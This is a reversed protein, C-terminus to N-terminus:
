WFRFSRELLIEHSNEEDFPLLNYKYSIKFKYPLDYRLAFYHYIGMDSGVALDEPKQFQAKYDLFLDNSIYKGMRITLNNLFMYYDKEVYDNGTEDILIDSSNEDTYYRSFFNQIIETQIQFYDLDLWQRIRNELPYILPNFLVTGIEIGALQIIEDQLLSNKQSESIEDMSRNYRLKSIIDLMEDQPDDSNLRFQLDIRGDKTKETFVDLTILTGDAAKKYFTGRINVENQFDSLMVQIYDAALRSGVFDIEGEESIFHADAPFLRGNECKLNLYGDKNVLLNTPYTVYHINDGVILMLDMYFPFNYETTKDAKSETIIGFLNLLNDTKPPYILKGNSAYIDGIISINDFPGSVLLDNSDRGKIVFQAVSSKPTYEPIHIILGQDNTHAYFKGMNIMGLVFDRDDNDIKNTIYLKGEGMRLRFTKIQLNNENIEFKVDIKEVKELQDNLELSGKTLAFNGKSVSLGTQGMKLKLNLSTKSSGHEFYDIRDALMKLLDGQYDIEVCNTDPFSENSLINYGIAGNCKLNIESKNKVILKSINLLSDEQSVICKVSDAKIGYIDINQASLDFTFNKKKEALIFSFDTDILGSIRAEPYIDQLMLQSISGSTQFVPKEVLNLEGELNLFEKENATLMCNQFNILSNNGQIQFEADLNKLDIYNFDSIEFYGSIDGQERSDYNVSFDLLGKINNATSYNTIYKLYENIKVTKGLVSIGFDLEPKLKIWSQLEIAQNFLFEDTKLSDLSGKASIRLNFPEYNLKANHSELKFSTKENKLDAALITLFIGDLKGFDQDFLRLSSDAILSDPKAKIKINGSVLPFAVQNLPANLDFRKLKLEAELNRSKINGNANLFIDNKNRNVDLLFEKGSLEASLNLDSIKNENNQVFLDSLDLDVKLEDKFSIDSILNGSLFLNNRQFKMSDSVAQFTFEQDFEYNGNGKILNNEWYAQNLFLQVKNKKLQTRISIDTIEQNMIEIKESVLNTKIEPNKLQGFVKMEITAKGSLIKMYRSLDIKSSTLEASISGKDPLDDIVAKGEFDNEDIQLNDFGIHIKKENGSFAIEKANADKEFKKMLVDELYGSYFFNGKEFDAKLNIKTSISDLFSIKLKSPFFDSIVIGAKELSKKKLIADFELKSSDASIAQLNVKSQSANKINVTINHWSNQFELVENKYSVSIKGEYIDLKKFFETIEPIEFKEKKTKPVKEESSLIELSFDPEYIKISKIAQLNKFKSFLLKLLNYEVYIQKVSLQYTRASDIIVLNSINLQKDNFSLHNISVDAKLEEALYESLKKRVIEDVKTMRIAVFFAINIVFIIGVIILLWKKKKL